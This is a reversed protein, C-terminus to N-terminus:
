RHKGGHFTFTFSTYSVNDRQDGYREHKVEWGADVYPKLIPLLLAPVHMENEVSFSIPQGIGRYQADLTDEITDIIKKREAALRKQHRAELENPDKM